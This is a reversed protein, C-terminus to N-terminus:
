LPLVELAPRAQCPAAHLSCGNAPIPKAVHRRELDDGVELGRAVLGLGDPLEGVPMSRPSRNWVSSPM